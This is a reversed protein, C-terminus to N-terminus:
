ALDLVSEDTTSTTLAIEEIAQMDSLMQNKALKQLEPISETLGASQLILYEYYKKGKPLKCLGGKNNGTGKLQELANILQEYAPLVSEEVAKRNLQRYKKREGETLKKM